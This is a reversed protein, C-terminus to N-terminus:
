GRSTSAEIADALRSPRWPRIMRTSTSTAGPKGPSVMTPSPSAARCSARSRTRPAMRFAPNTNGGRRIVTLRAGASNRLAPEERSRAIAMPIRSPDSCIRAPRALGANIPSSDSPPSIRGTGPVRGITPASTALPRSCTTTAAALAASARRTGPTSTMGASVSPSATAITVAPRRVIRWGTWRSRTSRCTRAAAGDLDSAGRGPVDACRGSGDEAVGSRASTRPWDSARRASSIARAPPWPSNSTPGGPEPFVSMARVM